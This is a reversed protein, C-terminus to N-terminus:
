LIENRREEIIESISLYCNVLFCIAKNIVAPDQCERAIDWVMDIKTLESPNVTVM